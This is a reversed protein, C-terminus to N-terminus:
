RDSTKSLIRQKIILWIDTHLGVKEKVTRALLNRFHDTRLGRKEENVYKQHVQHFLHKGNIMQYAEELNSLAAQIFSEKETIKDEVQNIDDGLRQAAQRIIDRRESILHGKSFYAVGKHSEYIVWNAAMMTKLQECIDLLGAEMETVDKIKFSQGHYIRLEEWVAAPELLYNELTYRRLIFLHATEDSLSTNVQQETRFDRDIIGYIQGFRSMALLTELYTEVNAYGKAPYFLIESLDDRFWETFVEVEDDGEVLVLKRHGLHFIAHTLETPLASITRM